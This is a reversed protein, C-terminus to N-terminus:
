CLIGVLKNYENYTLNYAYDFQDRIERPQDKMWKNELEEIMKRLDERRDNDNMFPFARPIFVYDSYYVIGKFDPYKVYGIFISVCIFNILLFM